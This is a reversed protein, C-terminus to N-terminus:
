PLGVLAPTTVTLLGVPARTLAGKVEVEAAPLWALFTSGHGPRSRLGVHGGQAEVIVRTVALGLGTGSRETGEVQFFEEFVRSQDALSLGPGADTVEVRLGDRERLLRLAVVSGDPSVKIANSLYNLVMQRLRTPDLLVLGYGPADLAIQIQRREATTQLAAVCGRAIVAPDVPATELRLQGAEIRSVDLLEDILNLMHGASDRVISVHEQAREGLPGCRGAAMLESYGIVAGLPNRLEHSLSAVFRTKAQAAAELAQNRESLARNTRRLQESRTLLRVLLSPSVLASAALGGLLLNWAVSV